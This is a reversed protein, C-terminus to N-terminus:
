NNGYNEGLFKVFKEAILAQSVSTLHVGDAYFLEDFAEKNGFVDRFDFFPVGANKACNEAIANFSENNEYTQTWFAHDRAMKECYTLPIANVIVKIGKSKVKEIISELNRKYEEKSVCLVKAEKDSFFSDNSGIQIVAVDPKNFFLMRDIESLVHVSRWGSVAGDIVTCPLVKEIIKGYSLRDSTNSDGFLMLKKGKIYDLKSMDTEAIIKEASATNVAEYQALTEEIFEKSEGFVGAYVDSKEGFEYGCKHLNFRLAFCNNM